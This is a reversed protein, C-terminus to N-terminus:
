LDLLDLLDVRITTVPSQNALVCMISHDLFITDYELSNDLAKPLVMPIFFL